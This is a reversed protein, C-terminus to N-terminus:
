RWSAISPPPAPRHARWASRARSSSRASRSPRRHRRRSSLLCPACANSCGGTRPAAAHKTTGPSVPTSRPSAGRVFLGATILLALSLGFQGAVLVDRGLWRRVRAGGAADSGQAQIQPMIETQSLRWAPGLGFLVTSCACFALTAALVRVDPTPDFSMAIPSLTALSTWLVRSSWYSVVLGGAGGVASLLFGETLLQRVIRGRGAGLALRMAVEKRRATGRALVMNALNM